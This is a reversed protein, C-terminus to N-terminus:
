RSVTSTDNVTDIEYYITDCDCHNDYVIHGIRGKGLKVYNDQPKKILCYLSPFYQEMYGTNFLVLFSITASVLALFLLGLFFNIIQKIAELVKM